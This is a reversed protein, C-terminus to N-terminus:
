LVSFFEGVDDLENTRENTRENMWVNTWISIEDMRIYNIYVDKIDWIIIEDQFFFCFLLIIIIIIFWSLLCAFINWHKEYTKDYPKRYSNRNAPRNIQITFALMMHHHTTFLFINSLKISHNDDFPWNPQNLKREALEMFVNDFETHTHRLTICLLDFLFDKLLTITKKFTIYHPGSYSM